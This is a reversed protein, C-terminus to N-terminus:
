LRKFIMDRMERLTEVSLEPSVPFNILRGDLGDSVTLPIRSSFVRHMPPYVSRVPGRRWRSIVQTVWLGNLVCTFYTLAHPTSWDYHLHQLRAHALNDRWFYVNEERRSVVDDITQIRDFIRKEQPAALRFQFLARFFGSLNPAIKRWHVTPGDIAKLFGFLARYFEYYYSYGHVMKAPLHDVLSRAHETIENNDTLLVGGGGADIIKNTGFSCVSVTGSTGLYAGNHKIGFGQAFDEILHIGNSYAIQKIVDIECPYGFLHVAVIAKTRKTIAKQLSQPDLNLTEPSVDCFTPRAGAYLAAFPVAYCVISPIVVEDGRGIGLALLALTLATTGTGVQIAHRRGIFKALSIELETM